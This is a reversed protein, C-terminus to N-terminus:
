PRTPTASSPRWSRYRRTPKAACASSTHRLSHFGVEVVARKGTPVKREKGDPGKEIPRGTGPKQTKVGCAEFHTHIRKSLDSPNKLYLAASEPLVYDGHGTARIEVLMARLTAHLPVLVPTPNRRATKSPIRRIIGRALDVESWRLTACDGM